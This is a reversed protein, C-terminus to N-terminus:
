VVCIIGAAALQLLSAVSGAAQREASPERVQLHLVNKRGGDIRNERSPGYIVSFHLMLTTM